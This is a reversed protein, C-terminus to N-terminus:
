ILTTDINFLRIFQTVNSAATGLAISPIADGSPLIYHSPLNPPLHVTSLNKQSSVVRIRSCQAWFNRGLSTAHFLGVAMIILVAIRLIHTAICRERQVKRTSSDNSTPLSLGVDDKDDSGEDTPILRYNRLAPHM